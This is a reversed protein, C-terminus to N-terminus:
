WITKTRLQKRNGYQSSRKSAQSGAERNKVVISKGRKTNIYDCYNKCKLKLKNIDSINYNNLTSSNVRYLKSRIPIQPPFPWPFDNWVSSIKWAIPISGTMMDAPSSSDSFAPVICHRAQKQISLSLIKCGHWRLPWSMQQPIPNNILPPLMGWPLVNAIHAVGM